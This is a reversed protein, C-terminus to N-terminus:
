ETVLPHLPVFNIFASNALLLSGDIKFRGFYDNLRIYSATLGKVKDM